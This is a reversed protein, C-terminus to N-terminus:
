DLATKNDLVIRALSDLAKQQCALAQATEKAAIPGLTLSKM